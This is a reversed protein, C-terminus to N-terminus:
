RLWELPNIPSWEMHLQPQIHAMGYAPLTPCVESVPTVPFPQQLVPFIPCTPPSFRLDSWFAVVRGDNDRLVGDLYWGRHEGNMTYVYQGQVLGHSKGREDILRTNDEAVWFVARGTKDCFIISM